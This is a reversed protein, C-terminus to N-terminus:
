EGNALGLIVEERGNFIGDFSILFLSYEEIFQDCEDYNKKRIQERIKAIPEKIEQIKGLLSADYHILETLEEKGTKISQWVASYGQKAHLIKKSIIDTQTISSEIYSGLTNMDANILEKEIWRLDRIYIHLTSHLQKRILADVERRLEKEKYGRYKPVFLSIYEIISRDEKVKNILSNTDIM